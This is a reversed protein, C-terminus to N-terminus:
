VFIIIFLQFTIQMHFKNFHKRVPYLLVIESYYRVIELALLIENRKKIIFAPLKFLEKAHM